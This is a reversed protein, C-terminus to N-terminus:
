GPTKNPRSGVKSDFSIAVSGALDGALNIRLQGNVTGTM